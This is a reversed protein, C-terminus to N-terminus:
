AERNWASLYDYAGVIMLWVYAWMGLLAGEVRGVPRVAYKRALKKRTREWRKADGECRVGNVAQLRRNEARVTELEASTIGERIAGGIRKDGYIVVARTM